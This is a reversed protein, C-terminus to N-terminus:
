GTEARLTRPHDAGYISAFLARARERWDRAEDARGDADLVTALDTEIEAYEDTADLNAGHLRELAARIAGEGAQREGLRFRALGEASELRNLLPDRAAHQSRMAALAPELEAQAARAHGQLLLYLGLQAQAQAHLEESGPQALAQRSQAEADAYDGERAAITARVLCLNVAIPHHEGLTKRMIREAEDADRRADSIRSAEGGRASARGLLLWVMRPHEPGSEAALLGIARQFATEAEPFRDLHLYGNGLNNWDVALQANDKGLLSERERLVGQLQQLAEHLEGRNVAINALNTRVKALLERQDGPSAQLEALAADADTKAGDPDGSQRRLTSREYLANALVPGHVHLARLQAIGRDFADRAQAADGLSLLSSGIAIRLEAQSDPAAGLGSDVQKAAERLLDIASLQAGKDHQLADTGAILQILFDKTALARKASAEARVANDRALAAQRNAERAQWLALVLAVSIGVVAISAAAVGWRNREVFKRLRYGRDGRVASVPRGDLWARLDNALAEASAYRREPERQLCRRVIADLDGRLASALRRSDALGRARATDDDARLATRSPTEPEVTTSLAAAADTFPAGGALLRHLVIGLAYVDTATTIAEGSIQEPAAFEPTLLRERTAGADGDGHLLKAIGFDLLKAQGDAAVLINGPKLDRHVVLNRHAHQVAGCVQLFLRIRERLGLAREDCWRDIPEGDVLEMAFYPAGTDNVGGDLLAAINPHQLRALIQRERLFRRRLAPQDLGMRILKIAALQQFGGEVREGRYVAGMGGHGIVGAIRWPGIRQELLADDAGDGAFGDAALLTAPGHAFMGEDGDAALLAAVEAHLAPSEAALTHLRAERVAPELEVLEDFLAFARRQFEPSNM